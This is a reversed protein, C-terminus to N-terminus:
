KNRWAAAYIPIFMGGFISILTIPLSLILLRDAGFLWGLLMFLLPYGVATVMTSIRIANLIHPWNKNNFAVGPMNMRLFGDYFISIRNEDYYQPLRERVYFCFCFGFTLMLIMVLIVNNMLFAFNWGLYSLILLEAACIGITLLYWPIWKKKEPTFRKEQKPFDMSRKVLSEVEHIELTEGDEVREGKLLETVTVGLTEALPILLSISPM